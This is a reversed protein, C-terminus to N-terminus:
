RRSALLQGSIVIQTTPHDVLALALAKSQSEASSRQRHRDPNEDIYSIPDIDDLKCTQAACLVYRRPSSPALSSPGSM